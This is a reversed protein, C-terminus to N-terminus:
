NQATFRVLIEPTAVADVKVDHGEVPIEESTLEGAYVLAVKWAQLKALARDYSGGGQGLRNGDRDIHLSPLVVVDIAGSFVEGIPEFVNGNEILHTNTGDWRVWELDKNPLLRPLLLVKKDQIIARNLDHTKPETGYSMYSAIVKASRFEAAQLLHEWGSEQWDMAEYHFEREARFRSRLESKRSDM